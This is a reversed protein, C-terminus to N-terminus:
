YGEAVHRLGQKESPGCNPDARNKGSRVNSYHNSHQKKAPQLFIHMSEMRTEYSATLSEYDLRESGNLIAIEQAGTLLGILVSINGQTKGWLWYCLDESLQPKEKVYCYSFLLKCISKFQEDYDLFGYRLGVHLRRNFLM